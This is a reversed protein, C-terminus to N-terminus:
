RPDFETHLHTQELVVDYRPGLEQRVADAIAPMVGIADAGWRRWDIAQGRYHLSGASHEGDLGSTMVAELGHRAYVAVVVEVIRAINPDTLDPLEVGPKIAATVGLVRRTAILLMAAM